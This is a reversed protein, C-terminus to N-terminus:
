HYPSWRSRCEKGVRREESRLEKGPGVVMFRPVEFDEAWVQVDFGAPVRLQAGDPKAIVKPRNDASPTAFPPPLKVDAAYFIAAGALIVTPGLLLARNSM